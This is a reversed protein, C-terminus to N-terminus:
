FGVLTTQRANFVGDNANMEERGTDSALSSDNEIDSTGAMIEDRKVQDSEIPEGFRM